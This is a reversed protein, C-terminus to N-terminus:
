KEGCVAIIAEAFLVADKLLEDVTIFEDAGHMHYDTGGREAGFAVGGEIDHVYTGGGIAICEGKEGEVREYVDLLAKVFDSNEDVCHPKEALLPNFELGMGGFVASEKELLDSLSLCTPFRIDVVGSICGNEFNLISFVLTLAGTKDSANLGVSSGDTEGFPFADALARFTDTQSGNKLPLRCLLSILATVANIGGEPTSAHASKGVANIKTIDGNYEVTFQVGSSDAEVANKVTNESVGRIEAYAKDPVANSIVGGHFSVISGGGINGAFAGRVMGKEVNIVPFSGDPTFVNPPLKEKELFIRLDDSGNEEDTGFVLQVGNKLPIGLEKICKMAYLSAVLPGKDDIVGRGFLRGDKETTEFPPTSWAAAEVPVVDLHGLIGLAAPEEGHLEATGVVNECCHTEFGSQECIKLMADLARRPETGFPAGEAPEGKVSPIAVLQSLVSLMEDKHSYIYNKIEEM